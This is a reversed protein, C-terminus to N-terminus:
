AAVGPPPHFHPVRYNSRPLYEGSSRFNPGQILDVWLTGSDTLTIRGIWTVEEREHEPAKVKFMCGYSRLWRSGHAARFWEAFAHPAWANMPPAESAGTRSKEASKEGVHRAAYKILENMAAGLQREDGKVEQLEVNFGWADRVDKYDFKGDVLILANLHINWTGAASLPCELQVLAGHIGPGEYYSERRPKGNPGIVPAGAEDLCERWKRQAPRWLELQKKSRGYGYRLRDDENMDVKTELFQRWMEHARKIGAELQGVPVNPITFVGYHIRRWRGLRKWALAAPIYKEAAERVNERAEDPCLRSNDCKLDYAVRVKGSGTVGVHGSVRCFKARKAWESMLLAETALSNDLGVVDACREVYDALEHEVARREERGPLTLQLQDRLEEMQHLDVRHTVPASAALEANRDNAQQALLKQLEDRALHMNLDRALKKDYWPAYLHKPTNGYSPRMPRLRHDHGQHGLEDLADALTTRAPLPLDRQGRRNFPIVKARTM